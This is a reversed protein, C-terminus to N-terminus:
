LILIPHKTEGDLQSNEQYAFVISVGLETVYVFVSSLLVM